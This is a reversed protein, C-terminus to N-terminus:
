KGGEDITFNPWLTGDDDEFFMSAYMEDVEETKWQYDSLKEALDEAKRFIFHSFDLTRYDSASSFPEERDTNVTIEASQQVTRYVTVKFEPFNSM